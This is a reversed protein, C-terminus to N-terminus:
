FPILEDFAGGNQAILYCAYRTLAWDARERRGGKGIEIMKMHKHFHHLPPQGASECATVARRVVADFWEWRTYSLFRMLDRGWWFETGKPSINKTEELNNTFITYDEM